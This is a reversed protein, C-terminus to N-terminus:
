SQRAMARRVAMGAQAAAQDVTRRDTGAAFSQNVFIQVPNTNSAGGNPTVHGGQKGTMLYTKGGVSLIEPGNEAVRYISHPAAPGGGALGMPVDWLSSAFGASMGGGWTSVVPTSGASAGGLGLLGLIGMVGEGSMWKAIPALIQQKVAIRVIDAVLSDAFQKFNLKGTTIFTVLADEMNKFADTFVGATLTAADESADVYNKLAREAGNVWDAEALLKDKFGKKYIALEEDQSKQILQRRREYEGPDGHIFDGRDNQKQLDLLRQAYKDEIASKGANFTRERDSLGVAEVARDSIKQMTVLYEEAAEQAEKFSRALADMHSRSDIDLKTTATIAGNTARQIQREIEAIRKSNELRQKETGEKADNFDQLNQREKDLADVTAKLNLQIYNKSITYFTEDDMLRATHLAAIISESDKYADTEDQLVVKIGAVRAKLLEEDTVAGQEKPPRVKDTQQKIYEQQEEKTLVTNGPTANYDAIDKRAKEEAKKVNAWSKIGELSASVKQNLALRTRGLDREDSKDQAEAREQAAVILFNNIKGEELTISRLLDVSPELGNKLDSDRKAKMRALVSQAADLQFANSLKSGTLWSGLKTSARDFWADFDNVFGRMSKSLSNTDDTLSRTKEILAGYIIAQADASKGGEQAARVANLQAISLFDLTESLDAAWKTPDKTMKVFDDAVDKATKDFMKGYAAAAEEAIQFVGGGIQGSKLLALGYEKVKSIRMDFETAIDKSDANFDTGTTGAFNGTLQLQKNLEAIQIAGKYAATGLVAMAAAVGVIAGGLPTLLAAFAGTHVGLSAMVLPVRQFDGTGIDRALMMLERRAYAGHLGVHQMATAGGEFAAAATWAAKAADLQESSAGRSALSALTTELTVAKRATALAKLKAIENEISKANQAAGIGSLAAQADALQAQSAGQKAMIYLKLQDSTGRIAVAEDEWKTIQEDIADSTEKSAKRTDQFGSALGQSTASLSSLASEAEKSAPAIRELDDAAAGANTEIRIGLSAIDPV